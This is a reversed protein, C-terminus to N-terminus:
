TCAQRHHGQPPQPQQPQTRLSTLPHTVSFSSIAIPNPRFAGLLIPHKTASCAAHPSCQFLEALGLAVPVPLWCHCASYGINCGVRNSVGLRTCPDALQPSSSAPSTLTKATGQSFPRRESSHHAFRIQISDPQFFPFLSACDPQAHGSTSCVCAPWALLLRGDVRLLSERIADRELPFVPDAFM